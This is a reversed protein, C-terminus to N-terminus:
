NLDYRGPKEIIFNITKRKANFLQKTSFYKLRHSYEIKTLNQKYKVVICVQMKQARIYHHVPLATNQM